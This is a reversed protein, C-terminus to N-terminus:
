EEHTQSLRLLAELYYYDAYVLPVDVEGNFPKAGVSHKLLFHSNQGLEARYSPSTLSEAITVAACRYREGTAGTAYRALETLASCMVAAASADRETNTITPANLDWYLVYDDPLNPHDLLYDAIHQAQKLYRVDDTERYAMTFGYLGWAQGRSWASSDSYGQHTQRAMVEGTLTDYAVVHFSSYDARFHNEMTRDAHSVAMHYYSSDGTEQAAWFLYELNMMNDIIVPFSWKANADWSQICGVRPNYRSALSAAGQLLVDRYVANNTLRYGNGFSNYLMFGLDHTSTSYAENALPMTRAHAEQMLTSDGFFEYLYWLSGPYFGSTWWDSECLWLSGDDATTRPYADYSPLATSMGLYQTKAFSMEDRYDPSKRTILKTCATVTLVLLCIRGLSKKM